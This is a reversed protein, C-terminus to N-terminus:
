KTPRVLIYDTGGGNSPPFTDGESLAIEMGGNTPKWIGSQPCKGGTHNAM